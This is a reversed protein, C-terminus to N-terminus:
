KAKDLMEEIKESSTDFRFTSFQLNEDLNFSLAKTFKSFVVKYITVDGEVGLYGYHHITGYEKYLRKPKVHEWFCKFGHDDSKDPFLTCIKDTQQTNYYEVFKKMVANHDELTQGLVVVPFLCILILLKKM